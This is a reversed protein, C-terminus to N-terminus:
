LYVCYFTFTKTVYYLYSFFFVLCFSLTTILFMKLVTPSYIPEPSLTRKKIHCPGLTQQVPWHATYLTKNLDSFSWLLTALKFALTSSTQTMDTIITLPLSVIMVLSINDFSCLTVYLNHNKPYLFCYHSWSTSWGNIAVASHKTLGIVNRRM